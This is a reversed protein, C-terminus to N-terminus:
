DFAQLLQRIAVAMEHEPNVMEQIQAGLDRVQHEHYELEDILRFLRIRDSERV